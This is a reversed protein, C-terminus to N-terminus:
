LKEILEVKTHIWSHVSTLFRHFSFSDDSMQVKDLEKLYRRM